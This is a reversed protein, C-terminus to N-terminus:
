NEKEHWVHCLTWINLLMVFDKATQCEECTECELGKKGGICAVPKVHSSLFSLCPPLERRGFKKATQM